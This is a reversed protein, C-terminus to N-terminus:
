LHMPDYLMGAAPAAVAPAASIPHPSTGPRIGSAYDELAMREHPDKQLDLDHDPNAYPNGLHWESNGTQNQQQDLIHKGVNTAPSITWNLFQVPGDVFNRYFKSFWANEPVATNLSKYLHVNGAEIAKLFPRFIMSGAVLTLAPLICLIKLCSKLIAKLSMPEKLLYQRDDDAIRRPAAV